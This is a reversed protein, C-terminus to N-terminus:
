RPSARWALSSSRLADASCCEWRRSTNRYPLESPHAAHKPVFKRILAVSSDIV